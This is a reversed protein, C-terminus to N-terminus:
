RRMAELVKNKLSHFPTHTHTPPTPLPCPLEGVTSFLFWNAHHIHPYHTGRLGKTVIHSVAAVVSYKCTVCYCVNICMRVYVCVCVALASCCHVCCVCCPLSSPYYQTILSEKWASPSNLYLQKDPCISHFSQVHTHTRASIRIYTNADKAGVVSVNIM